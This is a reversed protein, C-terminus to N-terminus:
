FSSFFLKFGLMTYGRSVGMFGLLVRDMGVYCVSYVGIFLLIIIRAELLLSVVLGPLHSWGMVAGRVVAAVYLVRIPGLSRLTEVPGALAVRVGFKRMLILVLRLSYSVTFATAMMVAFLISFNLNEMVWIELILDRSYFGSLFPFGCLALSRGIFYFSTLPSVEVVGGVSRIDQRERFGHIYVGACLFLLSKFLAHILLHFYALEVLGVSLAIIIVGLQSLTSLAIIRKLDIEFNAGLGSMFITGVALYFLGRSVGLLERFRIMLYVGATVLTSSHVLASIPTPAAIAAPLWASFPIQARKTLSALIVLGLVFGLSFKPLGGLFL